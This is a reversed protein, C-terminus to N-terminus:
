AHNSFTYTMGFTTSLIQESSGGSVIHCADCMLKFDLNWDPAVILPTTTLKKKLVNFAQICDDSFVFKTDKMLLQTMLCAIKSFDKIFIRYFGTHGLFSRIGKVNTPYPLKAIVDVKAKDVEIGASSIKHGLVIGEKVMFHCKEWNLVLNTEECSDLSNWLKEEDIAIESDDEWLNIDKSPQCDKIPEFLFSDLQDKPLTEQVHDHITLDVMDFSHCIDDCSPSFKM